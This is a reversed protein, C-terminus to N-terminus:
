ELRNLIKVSKWFRQIAKRVIKKSLGKFFWPQLILDLEM